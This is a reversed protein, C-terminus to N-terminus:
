FFSNVHISVPIMMYYPATLIIMWLNVRLRKRKSVYVKGLLYDYIFYSVLMTIILALLFVIVGQVSYYPNYADVGPVVAILIMLFVIGVIDAVFGFIWVMMTTRINVDKKLKVGIVNFLVNLVVSDYLLNFALAAFLWPTINLILFLPLATSIGTM